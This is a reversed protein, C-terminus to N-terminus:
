GTVKKLQIQILETGSFSNQYQGPQGVIEYNDGYVQVSDVATVDTGSPLVATLDSTVLDQGQVAETSTSPWVPVNALIVPVTTYVDNGYDDQGAVTQRNLTVTEGFQFDM